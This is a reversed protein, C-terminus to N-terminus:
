RTSCRWSVTFTVLNAVYVAAPGVAVAVLGGFAPGIISATTSRLNALASASRQLEHPVFGQNLAEISPRQLSSVGAVVM